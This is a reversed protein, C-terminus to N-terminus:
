STWAPSTRRSQPRGRRADSGTRRREADGRASPRPARRPGAVLPDRAGDRRGSGPRPPPRGPRGHAPRLLRDARAGPCSVGSPGRRSGRPARDRQGDPRVAAQGRRRRGTPRLGADRRRLTRVRNHGPARRGSGAAREGVVQQRHTRDRPTNVCRVGHDALARLADTRFILQELSGRPLGRVIFLDLADLVAGEPGLLPREKGEGVSSRLRTAPIALVEHRRTALTGILGRSHWSGSAGLVAVRM